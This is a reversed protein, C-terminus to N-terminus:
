WSGRIQARKDSQIFTAFINIFWPYSIHDAAFIYVCTSFVSDDLETLYSHM